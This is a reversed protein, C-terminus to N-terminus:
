VSELSHILDPLTLGSNAAGRLFDLTKGKGNGVERAFLVCFPAKAAHRQVAAKQKYTRETTAKVKKELKPKQGRHEEKPGLDPLRSRDIMAALAKREKASVKTMKSLVKRAGAKSGYRKETKFRRIFEDHDINRSINEAVTPM